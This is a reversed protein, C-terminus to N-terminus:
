PRRSRVQVVQQFTPRNIWPIPDVEALGFPTFHVFEDSPEVRWDAPDASAFDATLQAVTDNLSSVLGARCGALTGDACKLVTFPKSVPNGLVMNYAKQLYGYYGSQYASGREGPKNDFGMPIDGYLHGIQADFAADIMRRFWEDMVAVATTHDYEGDDDRDRRYAGSAIWDDLITIIPDLGPESGIIQLALPLVQEGRLDTTGADEMMEVMRAVTIPQGLAIEGAVRDELMDARHTPGFSYNSDAARWDRAPKNNWSTFFGKVPDIEQPRDRRHINGQWEWEGTGWSPMDYDVGDARVPFLGSHVFSIEKHNVYLWNFSGPAFQMARAFSRARTTRRNVKAFAAANEGERFFTSRQKVLAVPDGNVTARAFVLGHVTRDVTATVNDPNMSCFTTGGGCWTDVRQFMPTCTGNFMYHNSMISPTGGGPECLLEARVDTNDSGGATASWAYNKGRGLVIYPTGVVAAGRARLGGGDISIEYVLEPVFYAMQPGMVAIPNGGAGHAASVGLFNSMSPHHPNTREPFRIQGAPGVTMAPPPVPGTVQVFDTTVVSGLDPMAVAAADVPGQVLYPFSETTTVPADPEEVNRLDDYLAPGDVPGFDAILKQMLNANRHEGGGGAGFLFELQTAIAVVDTAKFEEIPYLDLGFYEAPGRLIPDANVWNIYRNVGNVFNDIDKKVRQGQGGFRAVTADLQQQLDAEDYGAFAFLSEDQSLNFADVGVFESLRGRGSRRALDVSFMRDIATIYGIGEMLKARNKAKIHPVGFDDRTIEVGAIPVAQFLPTNGSPGLFAPKFYNELESDLLGPPSKVLDSYMLRPDDIHPPLIGTDLFNLADGTSMFGSNGPPLVNLFLGTDPDQARVGPAYALTVVLAATILSSLRRALM